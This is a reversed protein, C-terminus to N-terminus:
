KARINQKSKGEYRSGDPYIFTGIGHKKGNNWSGIYRAGSPFIYTGYGHRIGNLTEGEYIGLPGEEDIIEQLISHFITISFCNKIEKCPLM